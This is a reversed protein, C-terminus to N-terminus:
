TTFCSFELRSLCQTQYTQSPNYTYTQGTNADYVGVSVTNSRSAIYNTVDPGLVTAASVSVKGCLLMAMGALAFVVVKKYFKM